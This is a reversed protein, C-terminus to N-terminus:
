SAARGARRDGAQLFLERLRVTNADVDFQSEILARAAHALRARLAADGLLRELAAALADPDGSRVLLGTEENRIVEPVGTVDTAVCPTGLAMAELLVTPLGDRNGDMAVMYPGAFVSAGRLLEIVEQQPRPGALEVRDLGETLIIRRLEAEQEGSGIIVCRYDIGRRSLEGCARLLDFFGKKEVLRGVSIITPPRDQSADFEFKGLDLGNYIREVRDADSGFHKRLHELNFDSVTVTFSADAMKRRLDETAVSEHFIDKAHATFSYPVGTLRSAVRAVTTSVTGFHAHLHGAGRSRILQALELAQQLERAELGYAESLRECPFVTGVTAAITNWLLEAKLGSSTLYFVPARVRSLADQFHTDNPPYLSVIEVEIDTGSSEHALIENVVFTESYRPYRKLVYLIKM